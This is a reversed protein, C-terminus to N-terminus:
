PGSGGGTAQPCCHRRGLHCRNLFGQGWCPNRAPVKNRFRLRPDCDHLADLEQAVNGMVGWPHHSRQPRLHKKRPGHPQLWDTNKGRM